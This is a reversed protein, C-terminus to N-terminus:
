LSQDVIAEESSAERSTRWARGSRRGRCRRATSAATVASSPPKRPRPARRRLSHGLIGILAGM